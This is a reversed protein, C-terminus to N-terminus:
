LHSSSHWMKAVSIRVFSVNAVIGCKYTCMGCKSVLWLKAVILPVFAVSEAVNQWFNAVSKAAFAVNQWKHLIKVCIGCIGQKAVKSMRGFTVFKEGCKVTIAM